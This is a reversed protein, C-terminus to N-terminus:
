CGSAALTDLARQLEPSNPFAAQFDAVLSTLAPCDGLDDYIEALYRYANDAYASSPFGEIVALYATKAAQRHVAVDIGANATRQHARGAFYYANDAYPSTPHATFVSEFATIASTWNLPGGLNYYARGLYYRVQDDYKDTVPMEATFALFAVVADQEQGDDYFSRGLYYHAGSRYTSAPFLSLLTQFRTEALAFDRQEYATIGAYFWANDLYPSTPYTAILSTFATGAAQFHPSNPSADVRGLELESRGMWLLAADAYTSGTVALVAQFASVAAAYDALEFLSRGLYYDANDILPSTPYLLDFNHFSAAASAYDALEYETRGVYYAADDVFSSGPFAASFAQFRALANAYDFLEFSSRAALFVANDLRASTPYAAAFADFAALSGAFDGANYLALAAQFALEDAATPDIGGCTGAVSDCTLGIGCPSTGPVCGSLTCVEPGNCFDGDDCNGNAVYHECEGTAAACLDVTCAVGDDCAKVTAATCVGNAACADGTNCPNGDDCVTGVPAPAVECAGSICTTLTCPNGDLCDADVTCNSPLGVCNGQVCADGITAALGDDCTAGDAVQKPECAALDDSCVAVVCQEGTACDRPAGVCQGAQCTESITCYRGDDCSEGDSRPAAVCNGSATNCLGTTCASTFEGCDADSECAAVVGGQCVADLCTEGTTSPDADKCPSGDSLAQGACTGPAVCVAFTCPTSPCDADQLCDPTVCGDTAEDCVTGSDCVLTGPTCGLATCAEVGNCYLGDSCAADDGDHTCVGAACADTTCAVGDDCDKPAGGACAGAGDCADDLTCPDGDDCSLAAPLNSEGCVGAPLCAPARCASSAPPCDAVTECPDGSVDTPEPGTDDAQTDTSATDSVDDIAADPAVDLSGSDGNQSDGGQSDAVYADQGLNLTPTVATDTGCGFLLGSLSFLTAITRGADKRLAVAHRLLTM